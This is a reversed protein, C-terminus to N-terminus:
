AVCPPPLIVGSNRSSASICVAGSLTQSSVTQSVINEKHRLMKKFKVSNNGKSYGSLIKIKIGSFCTEKCFFRAQRVFLM